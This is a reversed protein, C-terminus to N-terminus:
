STITVEAEDPEYQICRADDERLDKMVLRLTKRRHDSGNFNNRLTEFEKMFPSGPGRKTEPLSNYHDGYRTKM